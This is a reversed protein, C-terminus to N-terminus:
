HGDSLHAQNSQQPYLLGVRTRCIFYYAVETTHDHEQSEGCPEGDSGWCHEQAMSMAVVIVVEM